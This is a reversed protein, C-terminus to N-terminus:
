GAYVHLEKYQEVIDHFYDDAWDEFCGKDCFYVEAQEDFLADDLSTKKADCMECTVLEGKMKM